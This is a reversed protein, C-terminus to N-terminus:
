DNTADCSSRRQREPWTLQPFAQQPQTGRTEDRARPVFRRCTEHPPVVALYTATSVTRAWREVKPAAMRIIAWWSSAWV